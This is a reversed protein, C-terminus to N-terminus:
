GKEPTASGAEVRVRQCRDDWADFLARDTGTAFAQAGLSDISSFLASRRHEDLHAALEDLLLILPPGLPEATNLANANALVLGILLAKQEGTSCAKAPQNKETHFVKLDSRHPGDLARGAEADRRRSRALRARYDAEVAAPTASALDAELGGDIEVRARPFAGEAVQRGALRAVMDRRAAAVAVGEEAMRAELGDLWAPDFRGETLLKQRERMAREYASAAAGHGARHALTMRDLFRRRDGAGEAFLRDLAPTLWLFRLHEAFAGPGVTEGDVRCLKKDPSPAEAGVGLRRGDDDDALRLSASWGGAGGTRPLEALTARRLGRGPAFLSLAELLNTKGAGNSGYLAVPRGDFSIDLTEYSRYDSLALGAIRVGSM